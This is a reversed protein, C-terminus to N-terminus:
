LFYLADRHFRSCYQIGARVRVPVYGDILFFPLTRRCSSLLNGHAVAAYLLMFPDPRLGDLCECRVMGLFFHRIHDVHFHGFDSFGLLRAFFRRSSGDLPKLM